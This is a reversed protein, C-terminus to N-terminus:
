WSGPMTRCNNNGGILGFISSMNIIWGRDGSPLADQKLMQQIAYKCGLFVSKSNIRMASDWLENPTDHLLAPNKSEHSIGANNVMRCGDSATLPDM